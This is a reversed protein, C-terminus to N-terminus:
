IVRLPSVDDLSQFLFVLPRFDAIVFLRGTLSQAVQAPVIRAVHCHHLLGFLDPTVKHDVEVAHAPFHVIVDISVEQTADDLKVDLRSQGTYKIRVTKKGIYSIEITLNKEDPVSINFNGNLDTIAGVLSRNQSNVININVGVMVETKGNFIETVKGSLNKVQADADTAAAGVLLASVLLYKTLKMFSNETLDYFM